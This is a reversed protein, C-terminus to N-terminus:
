VDRSSNRYYPEGYGKRIAVIINYTHHLFLSLHASFLIDFSTETNKIGFRMRDGLSFDPLFKKVNGECHKRELLKM